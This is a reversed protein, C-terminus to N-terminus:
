KQHELMWNSLTEEIKPACTEQLYHLDNGVEVLTINPLHNMSWIINNMRTLFGPRGYMILKPLNSECLWDTNSKVLDLVPSNIDRHPQELAFQLLVKRNEKNEFPKRYANFDDDPLRHAMLMPMIKEVMYNEEIMLYKLKEPDDAALRTLESVTSSVESYEESLNFYPEILVIGKVKDPNMRAFALGIVSGWGHMVLTAPQGLELGRMFSQFYDIHEEITYQIDPKDSQGMGILDVLICRHRLGTKAIVKRWIYSSTPIGHVFVVPRGKGVTLFHMRAGNAMVYQHPLANIDM